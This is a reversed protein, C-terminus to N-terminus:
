ESNRRSCTKVGLRLFPSPESGSSAGCFLYEVKSDRTFLVEFILRIMSNLFAKSLFLCAAKHAVVRFYFIMAYRTRM